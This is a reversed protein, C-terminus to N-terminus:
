PVVVIDGSSLLINTSLNDGKKVDGYRFRAARQEGSANRHLVNIDNEAAFANLGGALALAQMVDIPQTILYEGPRNVKGLVYIKYGSTQRLSVTVAPKDRLYRSLAASIDNEIDAIPRGKANIHGALPVSIQGDPRVLVERSLEKENWIFVELVDGANVAYGPAPPVAPAPDALTLATLTALILLLSFKKFM